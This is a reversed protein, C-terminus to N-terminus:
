KLNNWKQVACVGHPKCYVNHCTICTKTKLLKVAGEIDKGSVTYMGYIPEGLDHAKFLVIDGVDKVKTVVYAFNIGDPYEVQKGKSLLPEVKPRVYVFVESDKTLLPCLMVALNRVVEPMDQLNQCPFRYHKYLKWNKFDPSFKVQSGGQVVSVLGVLMWIVGLIAGKLSQGWM